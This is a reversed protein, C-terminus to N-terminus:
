VDLGEDTVINQGHILTVPCFECGCGYILKTTPKAYSM